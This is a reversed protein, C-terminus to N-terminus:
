TSLNRNLTRHIWGGGLLKDGLEDKSYVKDITRKQFKVADCGSNAAIDPVKGGARYFESLSNPTLDTFETM